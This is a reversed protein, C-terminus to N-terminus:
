PNVAPQVILNYIQGLSRYEIGMATWNEHDPRDATCSVVRADGVVGSQRHLRSYLEAAIDALAFTSRGRAIARVVVPFETWIRQEAVEAADDGPAFLEFEVWVSDKDTVSQPAIDEYVGVVGGIPPTLLTDYLWGTMGTYPEYTM